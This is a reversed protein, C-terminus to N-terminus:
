DNEYDGLIYFDVGNVGLRGCNLCRMHKDDQAIGSHEHNCYVCWGICDEIATEIQEETLEMRDEVKIELMTVQFPDIGLQRMLDNCLTSAHFPNEAITHYM